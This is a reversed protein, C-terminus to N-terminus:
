GNNEGLNIAKVSLDSMADQVYGQLKQWEEQNPVVSLSTNYTNLSDQANRLTKRASSAPGKTPLSSLASDFEQRLEDVVLSPKVGRQRVRDPAIARIHNQAVKLREVVAALQVTTMATRAESSSKRASQAQHLSVGMGALSAVSGVITIGLAYDM